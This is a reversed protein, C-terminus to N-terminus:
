GSTPEYLRCILKIFTSKGAGNEGAISIKEQGIFKCNIHKLAYKKSEPYKFSVDEFEISDIRQPLPINKTVEYTKAPLNLYHEVSEFYISYQRIDNISDIVKYIDILFHVFQTILLHVIKLMNFSFQPRHFAPSTPLIDAM